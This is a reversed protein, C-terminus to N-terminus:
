SNKQKDESYDQEKRTEKESQSMEHGQEKRTEKESQSMEHGREKRTETESQSMEHGREKRTEKESKAMEYAREKTTEVGGYQTMEGVTSDRQSQPQAVQEQSANQISKAAQEYIVNSTQNSGSVARADLFSNAPIPSFTHNRQVPIGNKFVLMSLEGLSQILANYEDITEDLDVVSRPNSQSLENYQKRIHALNQRLDRIHELATGMKRAVNIIDVLPKELEIIALSADPDPIDVKSKSKSFRDPVLTKKIMEPLPLAVPTPPSSKAQQPLQFAAPIGSNKRQQPLQFTAPIGSSRLQQSSQVAAVQKLSFKSRHLSRIAELYRPYIKAYDQFVKLFPNSPINICLVKETKVLALVNEKLWNQFHALKINIQPLLILSEQIDANLQNLHVKTLNRALNILSIREAHPILSPYEVFIDELMQKRNIKLKQSRIPQIFSDLDQILGNEDFLTQLPVQCTMCINDYRSANANCKPCKKTIYNKLIINM